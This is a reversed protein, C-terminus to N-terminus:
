RTKEKKKIDCIDNKQLIKTIKIRKKINQIQEENNKETALLSLNDKTFYDFGITEKQHDVFYLM